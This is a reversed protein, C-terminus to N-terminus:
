WTAVKKKSSTNQAPDQKMEARSQVGFDYVKNLNSFGQPINGAYMFCYEGSLPQEFFVKYIGPALKTFNYKTKNKDALGVTAGLVNASGTEIERNSNKINMDALLFENPSTAVSFWWLLAQDLSKKSVDFYFYFEPKQDDFQVRSNGGDISVVEKVKAIGSTLGAMLAGKSKSQSYVTSELPVLEKVDGNMKFYYIGAEHMDLPNNPDIKIFHRTNDSAADVIANIIEEPIKNDALKFLADTNIDFNNQSTKIKSLIISSPLGKAKMQVVIENSLMETQQAFGVSGMVFFFIIFIFKLTRM